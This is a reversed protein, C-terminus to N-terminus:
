FNCTVTYFLCRACLKQQCVSTQVTAGLRYWMGDKEIARFVPNKKKKLRRNHQKHAGESVICRNSERVANSPERSCCQRKIWLADRFWRPLEVELSVWDTGSPDKLDLAQSAASFTKGLPPTVKFTIFSLNQIGCLRPNYFTRLPCRFGTATLSLKQTLM